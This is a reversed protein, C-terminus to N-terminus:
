LNGGERGENYPDVIDSLCNLTFLVIYVVFFPLKTICKALPKHFSVNLIILILLCATLPYIMILQLRCNFLICIRNCTYTEILYYCDQMRQTLCGVFLHEWTKFTPNFAACYEIRLPFKFCLSNKMIYLAYVQVDTHVHISRYAYM